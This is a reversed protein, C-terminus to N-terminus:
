ATCWIPSSWVIQNNDQIARVYYYSDQDFENDTFVFDFNSRGNIRAKNKQWIIKNNKFVVVSKLPSVAEIKVKIAPKDTIVVEQGM